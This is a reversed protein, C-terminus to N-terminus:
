AAYLLILIKCFQNTYPITTVNAPRDSTSKDQTPLPRAISRDETWPTGGSHRFTNMTESPLESDFFALPGLRRLKHSSWKV